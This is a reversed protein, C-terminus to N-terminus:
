GHSMDKGHTFTQMSKFRRCIKRKEFDDKQFFDKLFIMLIDYLKSVSVTGRKIPDSM